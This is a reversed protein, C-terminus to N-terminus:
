GLLCVIGFSLIMLITNASIKDIAGAIAALSSDMLLVGDVNWAKLLIGPPSRAASV